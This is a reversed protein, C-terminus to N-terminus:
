SYSLILNIRSSQKCQSNINEGSEVPFRGPQNVVFHAVGVAGVPGVGGHGDDDGDDKERPEKLVTEL